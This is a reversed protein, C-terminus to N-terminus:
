IETHVDGAVKDKTSSTFMNDAETALDLYRKRHVITGKILEFLVVAYLLMRAVFWATWVGKPRAHLWYLVESGVVSVLFSACIILTTHWRSKLDRIGYGLDFMVRYM